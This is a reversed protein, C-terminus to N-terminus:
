AAARRRIAGSSRCSKPSTFRTALGLNSQRGTPFDCNCRATWSMPSCRAMKRFKPGPRTLRPRGIRHCPQNHASPGVIAAFDLQAAAGAFHGARCQLGSQSQPFGRGAPRGIRGARRRHRACDFSQSQDRRERNKLDSCCERRKRSSLRKLSWSRAERLERLRRGLSRLHERGFDSSSRGM